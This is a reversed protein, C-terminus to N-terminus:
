HIILNTKRDAIGITATVGANFAVYDKEVGDSFIVGNESMRSTLHLPNDPTIIGYVMNTASTRSPFPERVAYVLKNSDWEFQGNKRQPTVTGGLATIVGAAGAYVSQLWGSSGAGTSVILGSSSQEEGQKGQQIHYKASVHSQAGIFLDNFGIQTQGDTLKAEAMTITKVKFEGAVVKPIIRYFSKVTFPLLVGDITKPDPNVALLPQETLYKATNVVLGDIGVTIVLDREDFMFQPLVEREIIQQKLGKPIKGRLNSLVDQYQEHAMQISAFDQGAHELYFRAQPVTNFREVLEELVTKRTVIVAKEFTAAM